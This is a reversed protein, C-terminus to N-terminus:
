MSPAKASEGTDINHNKAVQELLQLHQAIVNAGQQAVQKVNPDQAMQAENQFEKLDQKHDKIMLTIYERDFDPGSLQQLRAIEKKDKKSPGKPQSVGLQQAVPMFWKDNMQSHESVLKQALQKVDASQSREEALQGLQVETNDGEMAKSVFAKDAFGQGTPATGPYAGSGPNETNPMQEPQPVPKPQTMQALSVTCAFLVTAASIGFSYPIRKINM